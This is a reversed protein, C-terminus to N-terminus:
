EGILHVRVWEDRTTAAIKLPIAHFVDIVDVLGRPEYEIAMSQLGYAVETWRTLTQADFGLEDLRAKDTISLVKSLAEPRPMTRFENREMDDAQTETTLGLFYTLHLLCMNWNLQRMRMKIHPPLNLSGLFRVRDMEGEAELKKTIEFALMTGYSYGAIAYPGRPQRKRIAATYTEVAESISKFKEQPPEFGRARLGYVPRDDKSLHQALGVFVLVEGVGPHVLWLPTKSGGSQFTVVPDYDYMEQPPQNHSAELAKAMLRATPHKMLKILPIVDNLRYELCKKLRILDLSTFGLEFVTTNPGIGSSDVGLTEHM